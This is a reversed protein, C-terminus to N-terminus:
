LVKGDVSLVLGPEVGKLGAEVEPEYGVSLPVDDPSKEVVGKTPELKGSEM